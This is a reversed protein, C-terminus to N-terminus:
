RKKKYALVYPVFKDAYRDGLWTRPILISNGMGAAMKDVIEGNKANMLYELRVSVSDMTGPLIFTIEDGIRTENRLEFTINEDDVGTIVGAAHYESTSRTTDYNHASPGLPGDFFATTYGRTELRNLNEMFPAPDFNESDRAYEDL